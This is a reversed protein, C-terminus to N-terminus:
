GAIARRDRAVGQPRPPVRYLTVEVSAICRSNWSAVHRLLLPEDVLGLDDVGADHAGHTDAEDAPLHVDDCVVFGGGPDLDVAHGALLHEDLDVAVGEGDVM